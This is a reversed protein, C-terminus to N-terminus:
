GFRRVGISYQCVFHGFGKRSGNGLATLYSEKVASSAAEEAAALATDAAAIRASIAAKDTENMGNILTETSSGALANKMAKVAAIDDGVTAAEPDIAAVAKEYGVVWQLAKYNIKTYDLEAFAEDLETQAAEDLM